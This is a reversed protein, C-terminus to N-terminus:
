VLLVFLSIRCVELIGMKCCWLEIEHPILKTFRNDVYNKYKFVLILVNPRTTTITKLDTWNSKASRFYDVHLRFTPMLWHFLGAMESELAFM